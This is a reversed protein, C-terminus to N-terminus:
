TKVLVVITGINRCTELIRSLTIQISLPNSDLFSLFTIRDEALFMLIIQEGERGSWGESWRM